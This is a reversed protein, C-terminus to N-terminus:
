FVNFFVFLVIMEKYFYYFNFEMLVVNICIIGMFRNGFCVLLDLLIM